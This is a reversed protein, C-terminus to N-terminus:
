SDAGILTFAAWNKPDPHQKMTILMAQRLAQAKDTGHSLQNYFETMLDATPADPVAWLSVIVSPVGATILSRSLGVVGDGTIRGRGTDCASLIALEAQLTMDYIEASTLLGDEGNGPALAIAGPLDRVGSAQPDGYDLLGHTALHIIDASPLLKKIRIETAASDTLPETNLFRAVAQAERGAGPLPSLQIQNLDGNETPITVEPMTPNGVILTNKNISTTRSQAAEHALGLVQISPATLITHQEILYTGDSDQLAAFPVLFLSGQPIFAVKDTPHTPLLDAIPEILLQHLEKLQDTNTNTGIINITARTESIVNDLTSPQRSLNSIMRNLNTVDTLIANDTSNFEITRFEINGSPQVVWIHLADKLLSYEVLTIETDQAIKQIESITPIYTYPYDTTEAKDSVATNRTILQRAFAQARRRETTILAEQIKGQAIQVIELNSYTPIEVDIASILQNDSLETLVSEFIDLSQRLANEAQVVQNAQFLSVGQIGLTIAEGRRNGIERDVSIAQQNFELAREPQDLANYSYSILSLSTAEGRRDGVERAIKLSQQHLDIAREHQELDGYLRGLNGLISGEWQRYKIDQAIILAQQNHEIARAYQGIDQYAVALIGLVESEGARSGIKRYVELSQQSNEIARDYQGLLRYMWGLNSLSKAEGSQDNIEQQVTLAQQYSDVAQEYQGTAEYINGLNGLADAEGKRSEIARALFLAQQHLENAQDYRGLSFYTSGLNNLSGLEGYRDGIEREIALAQEALLIAQDYQGLSDYVISLRTLTVAESQQYGNERNIILAQNLVDIAQDYEGTSLYVGGTGVLSVAEGRSDRIRRFLVLSQEFSQIAKSFQNNRDQRNGQTFLFLAETIIIEEESAASVTLLYNGRGNNDFARVIVAYTGDRPLNAILQADTGSVRPNDDNEGILQNSSDVLGVYSDFDNSELRITVTQGAQGEFRHIDSLAGDDLKRDGAELRGEVELFIQETQNKPTSQAITNSSPLQLPYALALEQGLPLMGLTTITLNIFNGQFYKFIKM